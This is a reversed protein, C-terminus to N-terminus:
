LFDVDSWTFPDNIRYCLGRNDWRLVGLLEGKRAAALTIDGSAGDDCVLMSQAKRELDARRIKETLMM